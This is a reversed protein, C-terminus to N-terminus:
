SELQQKKSLFIDEIKKDYDKILNNLEEEGRYRDDETLQGERELKQITKWAEERLNRLGIRITEAKQSIMKVLEQRREQSMPPLTLRIAHGDNTITLNLNSSRLGSEIDGLANKDWPSIIINMADAIVISAMQKLPTQVGYYSVKLDGILESSARSAHIKKLDEDFDGIVRDMKPRLDSIIKQFM